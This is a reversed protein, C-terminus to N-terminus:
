HLIQTEEDVPKFDLVGHKIMKRDSRPDNVDYMFVGLIDDFKWRVNVGGGIGDPRDGYHTLGYCVIGIVLMGYRGKRYANRADVRMLEGNLSLGWVVINRDRKICRTWTGEPEDVVYGSARVKSKITSTCNAGYELDHRLLTEYELRFDVDVLRGTVTKFTRM